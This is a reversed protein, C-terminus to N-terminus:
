SIDMLTEIMAERGPSRILGIGCGLVPCHGTTTTELLCRSDALWAVAM